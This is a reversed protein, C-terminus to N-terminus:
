DKLSIEFLDSEADFDVAAAGGGNAASKQSRNKANDLWGSDVRGMSFLEGSDEYGIAMSGDEGSNSGVFCPNATRRANAPSYLPSAFADSNCSIAHKLQSDVTFFVKKKSPEFGCGIVRNVSAWRSKESETVLKMGDLYVAGDSHFGISRPYTGAAFERDSFLLDLTGAICGYARSRTSTSSPSRSTPKKRSPPARCNRGPSPLSMRLSSACGSCDDSSKKKRIAPNLRVTQVFESSGPPVEWTKGPWDAWDCAAPTFVFRSWGNEAADAVLRPHDDWRFPPQQQQQQLNIASNEQHQRPLSRHERLHHFRLSARSSRSKSPVHLKPLKPSKSAAAEALQSAPAPNLQDRRRRRRCCFLLGSLLVIAAVPLLGRPDQDM